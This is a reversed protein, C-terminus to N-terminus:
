FSCKRFKIFLSFAIGSIDIEQLYKMPKSLLMEKLYLAGEKGIECDIRYFGLIIKCYMDLVHLEDYQENNIIEEMHKVGDVFKEKGLDYNRLLFLNYM